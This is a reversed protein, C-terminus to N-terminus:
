NYGAYNLLAKSVPNNQYTIVGASTIKALTDPKGGKMEQALFSTGDASVSLNYAKGDTGKAQKVRPEVFKWASATTKIDTPYKTADLAPAIVSGPLFGKTLDHSFTNQGDISVHM